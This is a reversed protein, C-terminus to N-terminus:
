LFSLHMKCFHNPSIKFVDGCVVRLLINKQISHFAIYYKRDMYKKAFKLLYKYMHWLVLLRWLNISHVAYCIHIISYRRARIHRLMDMGCQLHLYSPHASKILKYGRLPLLNNGSKANAKAPPSNATTM